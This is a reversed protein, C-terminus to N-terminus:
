SLGMGSSASRRRARRFRIGRMRGRVEMEDPVAGRSLDEAGAQYVGGGTGWRVATGSVGGFVPGPQDQYVCDLEEAAAQQQGSIWGCLDDYEGPEWWGGRGVTAVGRQLDDPDDALAQLRSGSIEATPGSANASTNPASDGSVEVNTEVSEPQLTLALSAAHPATAATESLAFGDAAASIKHAGNAVCPFVFRGDAGSTVGEGGDLTVTAGPILALTSDRVVGTLTTGTCGIEAFAAPGALM